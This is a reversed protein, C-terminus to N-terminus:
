CQATISAYLAPFRSALAARAAAGAARLESASFSGTAVGVGHVNAAVAALMDAPTDGVYVAAGLDALVAAKEPGHAEGFLDDPDLGVSSLSLRATLEPKATIM